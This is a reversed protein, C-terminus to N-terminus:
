ISKILKLNSPHKFGGVSNKKKNMNDPFYLFNQKGINLFDKKSVTEELRIKRVDISNVKKPNFSKLNKMKMNFGTDLSLREGSEKKRFSQHIITADALIFSGVKPTYKIIKFRESYIRGYEAKSIPKLWDEKFDEPPYAYRIHNNAIDGMIYIHSAIWNPLAGTWTDSHMFETPHKRKLNSLDASGLKLRINPPFHFSETLPSINISELIAIYSKVIMNFELCVERKPVIMGNPTINKVKIKKLYYFLEKETSIKKKLNICEIIYNFVSKQLNIFLKNDLNVELMLDNIKKCPIKKALSSFFKRRIKVSM